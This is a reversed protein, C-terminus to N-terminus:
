GAKACIAFVRLDITHDETTSANFLQVSWGSGGGNPGTLSVTVDRQAAAQGENSGVDSGGGIVRKGSPCLVTQVASLGRSGESKPVSVASFTQNVVQYGSTGAPGRPGRNGTKGKAGNAGRPGRSGRPGHPMRGFVRCTVRRGSTVTRPCRIRIKARSSHAGGAALAIAAVGVTALAAVAALVPVLRPFRQPKHM